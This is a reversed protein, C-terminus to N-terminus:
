QTNPEVTNAKALGKSVELSLKTPISKTKSDGTKQAVPKNIRIGQTEIGAASLANRIAEGRQEALQALDSEKV